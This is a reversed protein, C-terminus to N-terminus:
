PWTRSYDQHMKGTAKRPEGYTGGRDPLHAMRAQRWRRGTRQENSGRGRPAFCGGYAGILGNGITQLKDCLVQCAGAAAATGAAIVGDAAAAATAAM